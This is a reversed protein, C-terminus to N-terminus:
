LKKSKWRLQIYVFFYIALITALVNSLYLSKDVWLVSLGFYWHFYFALLVVFKIYSIKAYPKIIWDSPVFEQKKIIALLTCVPVIFINYIVLRYNSVIFLTLFLVFGYALYDVFIDLFKGRDSSKNQFRALAGDLLDLVGVILLLFIAEDYRYFYFGLIVAFVGLALRFNTIGNATIKCKTLFRLVPDFLRARIEQGKYNIKDIWSNNDINM